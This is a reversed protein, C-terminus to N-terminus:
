RGPLLARAAALQQHFTLSDKVYVVMRRGGIVWLADNADPNRIPTYRCAEFRHPVIRRNKRENLWQAFGDSARSVVQALTVAAPNGLLDLADALEADEPARNANVIDWFATTKPPPAKPDFDGLDITRLYAAVHRDGGGDYFGWLKNWYDPEFDEKRSFSWAVYHRRDDAPLYLGDTKHNTTIIVACCNFVHHERMHKENVRLVDPPAATYVKLHDYFAYRDIEGLDRAENIRLIVSKAFGNFPGLMQQPSPEAVNWPGVARKVPEILSDKGIGQNGGLVLAHNIKGEPHQVRHALWHILHAADDPYVKQVHAIWPKAKKADGRALAPPRYLNLCSVGLRQIWGGEAILRHKIILPLGPAWTMQEVPRNQDLWASAKVMVPKGDKDIGVQIPPLRANVSAAPWAARSPAFIYNHQEMYAHFDEIQVGEPESDPTAKIAQRIASQFPDDDHPM